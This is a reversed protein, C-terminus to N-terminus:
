ISAFILVMVSNTIKAVPAAAIDCVNTRENEFVYQLGNLLLSFLLIVYMRCWESNM